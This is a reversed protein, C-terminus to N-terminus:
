LAELTELDMLTFNRGFVAGTDIHHVNGLVVPAQVPTHGVIVARCHTVGSADAESIRGRSWMAVDAIRGKMSSTVNDDLLTDAFDKWSDFPCDAHVIGVLGSRTEVEIAVPLAGMAESIAQQDAKPQDMNWAGGNRRYIDPQMNGAPWRHAMDDHNGMVAHFWPKELWALVAENEPGRDVLDGVSFLRDKAPDFGIRDLEAQLQSFCGHIDGVAVDRGEKNLEFHKLMM